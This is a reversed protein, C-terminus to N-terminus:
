ACGGVSVWGGAGQILLAYGAMSWWAGLVCMVAPFQCVVALKFVSLSMGYRCHYRPGLGVRLCTVTLWRPLTNVM